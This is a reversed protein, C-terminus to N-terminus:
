KKGFYGRIIRMNQEHAWKAAEPNRKFIPGFVLKMVLWTVIGIVLFLAFCNLIIAEGM